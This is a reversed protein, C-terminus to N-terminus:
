IGFRLSDAIEDFLADVDDTASESAIFNVGVHAKPKPFINEQAELGAAGALVLALVLAPIRTSM